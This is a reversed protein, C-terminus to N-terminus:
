RQEREDENEWDTFDPDAIPNDCVSWGMARLRTRMASVITKLFAMGKVVTGRNAFCRKLSGHFITLCGLRYPTAM